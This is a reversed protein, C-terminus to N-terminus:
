ISPRSLVAVNLTWALFHADSVTDARIKSIEGPNLTGGAGGSSASKIKYVPKGDQVYVSLIQMIYIMHRLFYVWFRTRKTVTELFLRYM